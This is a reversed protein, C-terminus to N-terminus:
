AETEGETHSPANAGGRDGEKILSKESYPTFQPLFLSVGGLTPEEHVHEASTNRLGKKEPRLLM